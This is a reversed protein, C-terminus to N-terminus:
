RVWGNEHMESYRSQLAASVSSGSQPNELELQKADFTERLTSFRGQCNIIEMCVHRIPVSGTYSEKEVTRDM